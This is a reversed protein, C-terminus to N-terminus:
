KKESEKKISESYKAMIMANGLGMKNDESTIAKYREVYGNLSNENWSKEYRMDRM